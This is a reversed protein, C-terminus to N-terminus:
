KANNNGVAINILKTVDSVDVKQDNNLDYKADYVGSVAINILKTVDSVDVLNDGNLDGFLSENITMTTVVEDTLYYHSIDTETLKVYNLTISHDGTAMGDAINITLTAIEGDTGTFTENYQSGCLFRIVGSEQESVTLTHQDGQPLRAANLSAMIRGNATKVATVGAPLLLDFQFGRIPATNKMKVSLQMQTNSQTSFPTIYIVNDIESIDTNTKVMVSRSAAASQGYVSGTMIINAVGIYDSVDIANDNNVDAAKANFGQPTDGMIHNAVGIYDSVDVIGDGSIDGTVYNIVTLTTTVKETVYSNSIDSETMKISRLELLHSGVEMDEAINLKITAIEGDNGTFNEDYQSGCLFRIIGEEQESVTLTHQDGEPLRVSNLSAVIRGNASKVATVGAPLILDFQFGRIPATNKMNIALTLESGVTAETPEIYIVNDLQSIPTDQTILSADIEFYINDFYYTTATENHALCFAITQMNEQEATVIGTYKFTNWNTEFDINGFAQCEMWSGPERHIETSVTANQSARYDFKLSYATGATLPQPLRIFFQTDFHYNPNDASQVVVGRSDSNGAEDVITAATVVGGAERAFYCTTETGEMSSNVIINAWDIETEILEVQTLKFNSGSVILQNGNLLRAMDATIVIDTGTETHVLAADGFEAWTWDSDAGFYHLSISTEDNRDYTMRLIDGPVVGRKGHANAFHPTHIYAADTEEGLWISNESGAYSTSTAYVHTITYGYATFVMGSAKLFRLIDGTLLFTVENTNEDLVQWNDMGTWEGDCFALAAVWNDTTAGERVDTIEIHLMDGVELESLDDSSIGLYDWDNIQKIGNWIERIVASAPMEVISFDKWYNASEYVSKSGYPVHLTANARNTFTAESIAIPTSNAVTVSTLSQCDEFAGNISTLSAPLFVEQLGSYRFARSAITEVGEPIVISPLKCYRFAKTQISKISSPLIISTLNTAGDFAETYVTTVGTFYQFEDFSTVAKNNRFSKAIGTVAAAEAKSLEGDGNDDWNDTCVAKANTDAFSVYDASPIELLESFSSNWVDAAEYESRCNDFIYLPVNVSAFFSEGEMAYFATANVTPPVQAYVSFSEVGECWAYAYDGISTIQSPIIVNTIPLERFASRGIVTVTSPIKTSVCGTLLKNTATEIIANCSKRSDYTANGDKVTISTLSKCGYFPNDAITTVSSPITISTLGTLGFASANITKISSPLSVSTLSSCSGFASTGITEVQSPINVSSLASCGSFAEENIITVNAPLVASQLYACEKCCNNPISTLATGTLDLSRLSSEQFAKSGIYEINGAEEFAIAHLKSCGKFAYNAIGEVTYFHNNHYVISPITVTGGDPLAASIDSYTYARDSEKIGNGVRCMYQGDSESTVRYTLTVGEITTATFNENEYSWGTVTMMVLMMLVFGRKM